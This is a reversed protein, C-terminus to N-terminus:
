NDEGEYGEGESYDCQKLWSELIRNQGQELWLLYQTDSKSPPSFIHPPIKYLNLDPSYLFSRKSLQSHYRQIFKNM